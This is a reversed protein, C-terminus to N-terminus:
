RGLLLGRRRASAHLWDDLQGAWDIDDVTAYDVDFTGFTDHGRTFTGSRRDVEFVV